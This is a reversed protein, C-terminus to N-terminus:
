RMKLSEIRYIVLDDDTDEFVESFTLQFTKGVLEKDTKLNYQSLVKPHAEEFVMDEGNDFEFTYYGNKYSKFVAIEM